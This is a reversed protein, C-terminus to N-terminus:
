PQSLTPWINGIRPRADPVDRMASIADRLFALSPLRDPEPGQVYMGTLGEIIKKAAFRIEDPKITDIMPVIEEPNFLAGYTSHTFKVRPLITSNIQDPDSLLFREGELSSLILDDTLLDDLDNYFKILGQCAIASDEPTNSMSFYQIRTKKDFDWTRFEPTYFCGYKSRLEHFVLASIHETAEMQIIKERVNKAEPFSFMFCSHNQFLDTRTNRIDALGTSIVHRPKIKKGLNPITGLTQEFIEKAFEIELPGAAYLVMHGADYNTKIFQNLDDSTVSVISDKTGLVDPFPNDGVHMARSIISLPNLRLDDMHDYLENVIVKKEIKVREPDLAPEAVIERLADALVHLNEKKRSSASFDYSTNNLGTSANKVGNIIRIRNSLDRESTSETGCFVTHELIHALGEKGVPDHAAGVPVNLILRHQQSKPIQLYVVKLGNSLEFEEARM